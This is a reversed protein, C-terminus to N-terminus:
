ATALTSVAAADHRTTHDSRGGMDTDAGRKRPKGVLPTSSEISCYFAEVKRTGGAVTTVKGHPRHRAKSRTRVEQRAGAEEAWGGKQEECRGAGM